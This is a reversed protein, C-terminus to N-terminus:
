FSWYQYNINKSANNLISDLMELANDKKGWFGEDWDHIKACFVDKLKQYNPDNTLLLVFEPLKALEFLRNRGYNIIDAYANIKYNNLAIMGTELKLFHDKDNIIKLLLDLLEQFNMNKEIFKQYNIFMKMQIAAIQNLNLDSKDIEAEFLSNAEELHVSSLNKIGRFNAYDFNANQLNQCLLKKNEPSIEASSGNLLTIIETILCRNFAQRKIKEDPSLTEDIKEWFYPLCKNAALSLIYTQISKTTSTLEASDIKSYNGYGHIAPSFIQHRPKARQRTNETRRNRTISINFRSRFFPEEARNFQIGHLKKRQINEKILQKKKLLKALENRSNKLKVVIFQNAMIRWQKNVLRINNLFDSLGFHQFINVLIDDPLFIDHQELSM